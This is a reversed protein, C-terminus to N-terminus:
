IELEPLANLVVQAVFEKSARVDFMREYHDTDGAHGYSEPGAAAWKITDKKTLACFRTVGSERYVAFAHSGVVTTFAQNHYVWKTGHKLIRKELSTM